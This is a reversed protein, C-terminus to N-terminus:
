LLHGSEIIKQLNDSVTDNFRKTEKILVEEVTFLNWDKRVSQLLNNFFDDFENRLNERILM